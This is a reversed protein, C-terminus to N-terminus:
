HGHSHRKLFSYTSNRIGKGLIETYHDMIKRGIKNEIPSLTSLGTLNSFIVDDARDNRLRLQRTINVPETEDYTAGPIDGKACAMLAAIGFAIHDYPQKFEAAQKASRVLRDSGRLKRFPDRRVRSLTDPFSQDELRQLTKMVLPEKESQPFFCRQDFLINTVETLVGQVMQKVLPDSMAEMTSKYGLLSGIAATIIHAGNFVLLKQMEYSKINDVIQMHGDMLADPLLMYQRAGDKWINEVIWTYSSQVLTLQSDTYGLEETFKRRLTTGEVELDLAESDPAIRDVVTRPFGVNVHLWKLFAKPLKRLEASRYVADRAQSGNDFDNECVLVNIPGENGLAQFRSYLAETISTMVPSAHGEETTRLINPSVTTSIIATRPDAVISNISDQEHSFIAQINSIIEINRSDQFVDFVTYGGQETLRPVTPIRNGSTDTKIDAFFTRIPVGTQSVKWYAWNAFGKGMVGAGYHLAQQGEYGGKWLRGKMEAARQLAEQVHRTKSTTEGIHLRSPTQIIRNM